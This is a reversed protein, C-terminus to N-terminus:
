AQCRFFQALLLFGKLFIFSAACCASFASVVDGGLRFYRVRRNRTASNKAIPAKAINVKSTLVVGDKGTSRWIVRASWDILEGNNASNILSM